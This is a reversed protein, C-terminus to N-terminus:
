QAFLILLKRAYLIFSPFVIAKGTKYHNALFIVNNKEVGTMLLLHLKGYGKKIKL